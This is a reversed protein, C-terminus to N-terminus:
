DQRADIMLIHQTSRMASNLASADRRMKTLLSAGLWMQYLSTATDLPHIASSLSGDSQAEVICSAIRAIIRQTGEQLAIRMAESLDSVEGALKAALCQCQMDQNVLSARWGEWYAMLRLAAPRHDPALLSDISTLYDNFYDALLAEGFLEKSKFYHYFSGKPVAAATLVENLGVAAFGKGLIIPKATDLIHQRTNDRTM